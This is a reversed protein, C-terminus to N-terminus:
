KEPVARLPTGAGSACLWHVHMSPRVACVNASATLTHVLFVSHTRGCSLIQGRCIRGPRLAFARHADGAAAESLKAPGEHPTGARRTLTWHAHAAWPALPSPNHRDLRDKVAQRLPEGDKRSEDVVRDLLVKREARTM